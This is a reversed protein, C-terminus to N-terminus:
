TNAEGMEIAVAHVIGQALQRATEALMTSKDPNVEPDGLPLGKALTKEATKETGTDAERDGLTCGETLARGTTKEATKEAQETDLTTKEAEQDAERDGLTHGEKWAREITLRTTRTTQGGGERDEIKSGAGPDARQGRAEQGVGAARM